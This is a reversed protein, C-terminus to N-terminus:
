LLKTQRDTGKHSLVIVGDWCVSQSYDSKTVSQVQNTLCRARQLFNYSFRATKSPFCTTRVLYFLEPRGLGGM